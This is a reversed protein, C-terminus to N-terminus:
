IMGLIEKCSWSRVRLENATQIQNPSSISKHCFWIDQISWKLIM